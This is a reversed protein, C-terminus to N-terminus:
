GRRRVCHSNTMRLNQLDSYYRVQTINYFHSIDATPETAVSCGGGILAYKVPEEWVVRHFFSQLAVSHDCKNVCQLHTCHFSFPSSEGVFVM